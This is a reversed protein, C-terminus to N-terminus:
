RIADRVAGKNVTAFAVEVVLESKVPRGLVRGPEFRAAKFAEIAAQDFLGPRSASVVEASDVTGGENIRLRLVVSGGLGGASDPYVPDIESIPVPAQQLMGRPLYTPASPPQESTPAVDVPSSEVPATRESLTPAKTNPAVNPTANSPVVVWRMAQTEAVSSRGGLSGTESLFALLGVHFASSVLLAVLIWRTRAVGGVASSVEIRAIRM